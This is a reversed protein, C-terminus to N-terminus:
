DLKVSDVKLVNKKGRSKLLNEHWKLYNNVDKRRKEVTKELTRIKRKLEFHSPVRKIDVLHMFEHNPNQQIHKEIKRIFYIYCSNLCFIHASFSVVSTYLYVM